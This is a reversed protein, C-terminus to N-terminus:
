SALTPCLDLLTGTSVVSTLNGEPDYVHEAVAVPLGRVRFGDGALVAITRVLVVTSGSTAAAFAHDDPAYVV